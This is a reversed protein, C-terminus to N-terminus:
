EAAEAVPEHKFIGKVTRWADYADGIANLVVDPDISFQCVATLSQPEINCYRDGYHLRHCPYCAIKSDPIMSRTNVWDRTLNEVSSHSLFVVKTNPEYAVANLVGTEPGVVCNAQKAIALTDRISLEGSTKIVRAENEWGQELVKCEDNGVLMVVAEPMQLMIAAIVGDMHAYTKHVSSGALVWLIFFKGPPIRAAAAAKEAETDYFRQDHTLPLEALQATWELYNQNLKAHRVVHPWSHNARGPMALLSGEISECLNIFKTFRRAQAEFFETLENNPVQDTDQISFDDIHPDHKLIDFGKPTTMMTVHYGQRKLEPLLNSAQIMDGYGGYRVVCVTKTPKHRYELSQKGDDRKRYVQLFSYEMREARDENEVLSWGGLKRMQTVIDEPAFDHKHDPNSGPQGIRPYLDRHPLYLVLHGGVKVLRWMERLAAAHDEIHELMHSSFVFDMSNTNFLSLDLCDKVVIDPRMRIGFLATDKQNDVGIFHPFAKRPGCGLDIGRGRTYRVIEYKVKGAEDGQQDERRWVM